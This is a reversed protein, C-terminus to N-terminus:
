EKASNSACSKLKAANDFNFLRVLANNVCFLLFLLFLSAPTVFDDVDNDAEAASVGVCDGDCDLDCDCDLIEIPFVCCVFFLFRGCCPFGAAAVADAVVVFPSMAIPTAVLIGGSEFGVVFHPLLVVVLTHHVCTIDVVPVDSADADSPFIPNAVVSVLKTVRRVATVVWLLMRLVVLAATVIVAVLVAAALVVAADTPVVVVVVFHLENM